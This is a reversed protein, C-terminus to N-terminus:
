RVCPMVLLPAAAAAAAAYALCSSALVQENGNVLECFESLRRRTKWKLALSSNMVLLDYHPDQLGSGLSRLQNVEHVIGFVMAPGQTKQTFRMFEERSVVGDANTDAAVFDNLTQM